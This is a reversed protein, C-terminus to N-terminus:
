ARLVSPARILKFPIAWKINNNFHTFYYFLVHCMSNGQGVVLSENRQWQGRGDQYCIAESGYDYEDKSRYLFDKL